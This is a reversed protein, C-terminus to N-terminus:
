SAFASTGNFLVVSVNERCSSNFKGFPSLRVGARGPGFQAVVAIFPLRRASRGGM